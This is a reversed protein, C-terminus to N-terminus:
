LSSDARDRSPVGGLSPAAPPHLTMEQINKEEKERKKEKSVLSLSSAFVKLANKVNMTIHIGM